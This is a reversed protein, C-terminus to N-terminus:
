EGIWPFIPATGTAPFFRADAAPHAELGDPFFNAQILFNLLRAKESHKPIFICNITELASNSIAFM